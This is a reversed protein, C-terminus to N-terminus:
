HGLEAATEPSGVEVSLTDTSPDVNYWQGEPGLVSIVVTGPPPDDVSRGTGPALIQTWEVHFGLQELARGTAVPDDRNIAAEIEPFVEYLSLGETDMGPEPVGITVVVTGGGDLHINRHDSSDAMGAPIGIEFIRGAAAPAVPVERIQLQAGHEAFVAKLREHNAADFLEEVDVTTGDSFVVTEATSLDIAATTELYDSGDIVLPAVLLSAAVLAAGAGAVAVRPHRRAWALRESAQSSPDLVAVRLASSARVQRYPALAQRIDDDTNDILDNM